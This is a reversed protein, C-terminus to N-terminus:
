TSIAKSENAGGPIFFGGLHVLITVVRNKSSLPLIIGRKEDAM